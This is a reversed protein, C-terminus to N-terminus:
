HSDDTKKQQQYFSGSSKTEDPHAAQQDGFDGGQGTPAGPPQVAADTGNALGSSTTTQGATPETFPNPTDGDDTGAIAPATLTMLAIMSLYLLRM